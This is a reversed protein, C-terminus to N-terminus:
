FRYVLAIGMFRAGYYPGVAKAEVTNTSPTVTATVTYGPIKVSEINHKLNALDQPSMDGMQPDTGVFDANINTGYFPGLIWWDIGWHQGILFQYGILFGAGMAGFKSDMHATHLKEDSPTFTYDESLSMHMYRFFPAIYFGKPAHGGGTYFRYELTATYKTFVTTEIARQADANGGFDNVLTQKFPLPTNPAIGLTLAVSQHPNVVYEYQLTYQQLILGSLNFKILNKKLPQSAPQSNPQQAQVGYAVILLLLWLPNIKKIM